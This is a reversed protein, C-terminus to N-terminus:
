LHGRRKLYDLELDALLNLAPRAVLAALLFIMGFMLTKDVSM